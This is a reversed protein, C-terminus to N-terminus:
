IDLINTSNKQAESETQSFGSLQFNFNGVQPLINENPKGLGQIDLFIQHRKNKINTRPSVPAM